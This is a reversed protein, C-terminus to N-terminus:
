TKKEADDNAVGVKELSEAIQDKFRLKVRESPIEVKVEVQAVALRHLINAHALWAKGDAAPMAWCLHAVRGEVPAGFTLWAFVGAVERISVVNDFLSPQNTLREDQRTPTEEPFMGPSDTRVVHAKFEGSSLEVWHFPGRPMHELSSTFPLDGTKCAEHMRALIGARRLHGRIDRGLPGRLWLENEIVADALLIGQQVARVTEVDTAAPFCAELREQFDVM